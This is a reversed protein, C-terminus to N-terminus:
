PAPACIVTVTISWPPTSGGVLQAAEATWANTGSITSIRLGVKPPDGPDALVAGGAIARGALCTATVSKPSITNTLSPVSVTTLAGITGGIAGTAGTTGHVRRDLTAKRDRRVRLRGDCWDRRATGASGPWGDCWDRRATGASGCAGTAGIDGQPGQPGLGGTAGIDGQPGQPGAPGTTGIDGQLGQPGAPGTTGVDGQLGQPGTEGSEVVLGWSSNGAPSSSAACGVANVCLYSSGDDTFHVADNLDYINSSNFNGQWM